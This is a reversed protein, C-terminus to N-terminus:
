NSSSAMARRDFCMTWLSCQPAREDRPDPRDLEGAMGSDVPLSARPAIGDSVNSDFGGAIHRRRSRASLPAFGM